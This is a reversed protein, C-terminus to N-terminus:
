NCRIVPCGARENDSTNGSLERVSDALNIDDPAIKLGCQISKQAQAGCGCAHLAYALNNWGNISGPELSVTNKFAAVSEYFEDTAYAQNGLAMWTVPSEPWKRSAARYAELALENNGTEEFAYVTTLYPLPQATAPIDGVPVIALAWFGARQWTREFVKFATVWRETTGSRLIVEQNQIDYGIVVAYHWQPYWELGLNQLVLVPHGAAVETFLDILRPQLEYPLMGHQRAAATMEIQLSGKRGPIYVQGSLREPTADVGYYQLVTALAAPGCQHQTQPYFPTQELETVLPLSGVGSSQIQGSQPTSACSSLLLCLLLCRLLDALKM